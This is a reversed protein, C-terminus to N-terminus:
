TLAQRERLHYVIAYRRHARKLWDYRRARHLQGLHSLHRDKADFFRLFKEFNTM